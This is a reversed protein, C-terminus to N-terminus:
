AGHGMRNKKIGQVRPGKSNGLNSVFQRITKACEEPKEMPIFHGAGSITVVQCDTILTRLREAADLYFADSLEGRIALVPCIIRKAYDWVDLPVSEFIQAELEPDCRLVATQPDKELLGCELYAEIFRTSWSKFIGHGTTFRELASQKGRFTKQRLRARRPLALKGSLGLRKVIAMSWLIRKPFIVPDILVVASFLHPHDSAAMYTAVAGLSHGMGIVPAAMRHDIVLKIDEAFIRWHDIRNPQRLISDGHGRVDSAYIHHDDMLHKLFPTYTGACFGNGHMFHMQAGSGGWDLYHIRAAASEVFGEIPERLRISKM